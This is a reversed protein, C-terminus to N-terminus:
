NPLIGLADNTLNFVKGLFGGQRKSREEGIEEEEDEEEGEDDEDEGSNKEDVEREYHEGRQNRAFFSVLGLFLLLLISKKLLFM